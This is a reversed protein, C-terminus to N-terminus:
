FVSIWGRSWVRFGGAVVCGEHLCQQVLRESLLDCVAQKTNLCLNRVQSTLVVISQGRGQDFLISM